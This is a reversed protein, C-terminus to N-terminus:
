IDEFFNTSRLQSITHGQYDDNPKSKKVLWNVKFKVNTKFWLYNSLCKYDMITLEEKTQNLCTRKLIAIIYNKASKEYFENNDYTVKFVFENRSLKFYNTLEKAKTGKLFDDLKKQEEQLQKIQKSVNNFQIQSNQIEELSPEIVSIEEYEIDNIQNHEPEKRKKNM